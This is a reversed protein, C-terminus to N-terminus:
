GKDLVRLAKDVAYKLNKLAGRREWDNKTSGTEVKEGQIAELWDHNNMVVLFQDDAMGDFHVVVCPKDQM